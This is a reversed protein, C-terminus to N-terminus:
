VNAEEPGAEEPPGELRYRSVLVTGYRYQKQLVLGGAEVPLDAGPESECLVLAGEALRPRVAALVGPVLGQEYPPDLLVLDFRERSGALFAAVGSRVVRSKERYGAADINERLVKLAAPADEVFTCFAAGRSLAELGLQGSGAYLDAVRAGPLWFHVASFMGEKVRDLTPRTHSGPLAQLKTGRKEGAIIRM